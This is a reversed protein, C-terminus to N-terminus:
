EKRDDAHQALFGGPYGPAQEGFRVVSCLMDLVLEKRTLPAASSGRLQESM